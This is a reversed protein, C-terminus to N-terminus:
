IETPRPTTAPARAVSAGSGRTEVRTLTRARSNHLHRQLLNERGALFPRSPEGQDIPARRAFVRFLGGEIQALTRRGGRWRRNYTHKRTRIRPAALLAFSHRRPYKKLPLCGTVSQVYRSLTQQGARPHHPPTPPQQDLRCPVGM